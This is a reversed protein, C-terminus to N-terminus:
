TGNAESDDVSRGVTPFRITELDMTNPEATDIGAGAAEHLNLMLRCLLTVSLSTTFWSLFGSLLVDGLYFTSLNALNALVIIGFYMGGDTVMREILTGTYRPSTRRQIYARRVTLAFVLTDCVLQAEWAGALGALQPIYTTPISQLTFPTCERFASSRPIATHCGSLGPASLMQPHGYKVIAWLALSASLGGAALLCSLIWVNLGYMAFVRLGLTCEVLVEQIVLLVEWALQMKVCSNMDTKTQDPLFIPIHSRVEEHGLNGFYFVSITISAALGAYRVALFWCTSPRLRSSWVYKVETGFTLLHDYILIVLGAVFFSRYIRHDSAFTAYDLDTSDGLEGSPPPSRPSLPQLHCNRLERIIFIRQVHRLDKCNGCRVNPGVAGPPASPSFHDSLLSTNSIWYRNEPSNRVRMGKFEVM